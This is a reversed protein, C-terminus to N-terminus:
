LFAKYPLNPEQEFADTFGRPYMYEGKDKDDPFVFKGGVQWIFPKFQYQLRDKRYNYLLTIEKPDSYFTPWIDYHVPIIVKCNLNEAMRLVDSSTVKDSIGIPNDGYAAIAVDIDFQKGHKVYYNSFHSDGSHYFTGGPTKVVYNVARDDMDDTLRGAISGEPPATILATRDFADVVYIETDKIKVVDGPKVTIIRDEPVGWGIWKDHSFKPGIFPTEPHNQLVAATSYPDMHDAHDHTCVFADINIIEFPDIVHPINRPNLHIQNSGTMRGLQFNPGKHNNMWKYHSVKANGSFLDFSINAGGESKIWIGTCGLWWCAFSGPRVETQNIEEILWKGWEPFNEDIWAQKTIENVNPM